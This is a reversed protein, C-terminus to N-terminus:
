EFRRRRHRSRSRRYTMCYRRHFYAIVFLVSACSFLGSLCLVLNLRRSLLPCYYEDDGNPCHWQGDCVFEQRICHGMTDAECLYTGNEPNCVSPQCGVEDRGDACEILGNCRRDSALCQYGGGIPDDSPVQCSLNPEACEPLRCDTSYSAVGDEECETYGNCRPVCKSNTGDWSHCQTFQPPCCREDSADICDAVGDCQWEHAICTQQGKSYKYDPSSCWQAVRPQDPFPDNENPCVVDYIYKFSFKFAYINSQKKAVILLRGGTPIALHRGQASLSPLCDLNEAIQHELSSNGSPVESDLAAVCVSCDCYQSLHAKTSDTEEEDTVPIGFVPAVTVNYVRDFIENM